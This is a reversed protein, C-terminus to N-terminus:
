NYFYIYYFLPPEVSDDISGSVTFTNIVFKFYLSIIGCLVIFKEM